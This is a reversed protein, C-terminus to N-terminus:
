KAFSNEEELDMEMSQILVLNSQIEQILLELLEEESKMTYSALSAGSVWMNIMAYVFNFEETDQLVSDFYDIALDKVAEL